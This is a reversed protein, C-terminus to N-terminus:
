NKGKIELKTQDEKQTKTVNELLKINKQAKQQSEDCKTIKSPDAKHKEDCTHKGLLIEKKQQM